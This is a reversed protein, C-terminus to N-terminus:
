DQLDMQLSMSSQMILQSNSNLDIVNTSLMSSKGYQNLFRQIHFATIAIDVPSGGAFYRLAISLHVAHNILGNRAGKRTKKKPRTSQLELQPHLIGLLKWFSRRSMRYARRTFTEGLENM